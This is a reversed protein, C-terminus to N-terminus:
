PRAAAQAPLVAEVLEPIPVAFDDTLKKLTVGETAAPPPTLPLGTPDLFDNRSRLVLSISGDLQSFKIVEAQTPTVALM